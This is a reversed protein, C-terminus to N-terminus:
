EVILNDDGETIISDGGETLISVTTLTEGNNYNVQAYCTPADDSTSAPGKLSFTNTTLEAYRLEEFSEFLAWRARRFSFTVMTAWLVPQM